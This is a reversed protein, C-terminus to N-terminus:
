RRVTTARMGDALKKGITAGWVEHGNVDLHIGDYFVKSLDLGHWDIEDLLYTARLGEQRLAAAVLEDKEETHEVEGRGPSIFIWHRFGKGRLVDDMEKLKKAAANVVKVREDQTVWNQWAEYRRDNLAWAAYFILEQWALKPKQCWVPMGGIRTLGRYFDGEILVTVYSRAPQFGDNVVLGHINDVGWGNVGANGSTYGPLDKVALATFMDRNSIYSGAFTVSDGLFLVKDDAEADWDLDARLGLNNIRIDAGHFRTLVQNPRPRYGYFPHADYLVPAGLGMVRSFIVEGAVLGVVVIVCSVILGVLKPHTKFLAGPM